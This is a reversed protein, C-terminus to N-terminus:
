YPAPEIWTLQEYNGGATVRALPNRTLIHNDIGYYEKGGFWAKGIITDFEGTRLVEAIVATDLTQAQEIAQLLTEHGAGYQIALPGMPEGYKALHRDVLEQVAPPYPEVMSMGGIVGEAYEAGAIEVIVPLNAGAFLSFLGTYGLMRAQKIILGAEDPTCGDLTILEPERDLVRLLVATFDQTGPQYIEKAVATLGYKLAYEDCLDVTWQAWELNTVMVAVNEVEPYETVFWAFGAASAEAYRVGYSFALPYEPSPEYKAYVTGWRIVGEERCLDRMAISPPGQSTAIALVEDQFILRQAIILGETASYKNDYAIVQITHKVGQIDIGGAEKVKDALLEFPRLVPIGWGAGWGSLAVSVGIKIVGTKIVPAEPAPKACSAVILSLAMVLSLFVLLGKRKM